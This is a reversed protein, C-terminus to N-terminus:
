EALKSSFRQTENKGDDVFHEKDFLKKKTNQNLKNFRGMDRHDDCFLMHDGRILSVNLWARFYM